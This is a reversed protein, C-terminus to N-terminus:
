DIVQSLKFDLSALVDSFLGLSTQSLKFLAFFNVCCHINKKNEDCLVLCGFKRKMNGYYCHLMSLSFISRKSSLM